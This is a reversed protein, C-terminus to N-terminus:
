HACPGLAPAPFAPRHPGPGPPGGAGPLKCLFAPPRLPCPAQELPPPEAGRSLPAFVLSPSSAGPVGRLAARLNGRLFPHSPCKSLMAKGGSRSRESVSATLAWGLRGARSPREQEPPQLGGGRPGTARPPLPQLPRTRLNATREVSAAEMGRGGDRPRWGTAEMRGGGDRPRWGAAEM